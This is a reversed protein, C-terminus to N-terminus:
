FGRFALNVKRARYNWQRLWGRKFAEYFAAGYVLGGLHTSHAIGGSGALGCIGLISFGVLGLFLYYAPLTIPIFSVIMRLEKTPYVLADFALLALTVGSLGVCSGGGKDCLLFVINGFIAAPLVFIWLSVGHSALSQKVSRGFTLYAYMNVAIHHFSAHSFASLLLAHFRRKRVVNYYSCVFHNRLIPILVKSSSSSLSQYQWLLYLIMSIIFGNFLTPSFRNLDGFYNCIAQKLPPPPQSRRHHYTSQLKAHYFGDKNVDGLTPSDHYRPNAEYYPSASAAGGRLQPIITYVLCSNSHIANAHRHQPIRPRTISPLDNYKANVAGGLLLCHHFIWVVSTFLSRHRPAQMTPSLARRQPDTSAIKSTINQAPPSTRSLKRRIRQAKVRQFLGIM